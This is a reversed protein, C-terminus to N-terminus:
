LFFISEIQKEVHAIILNDNYIKTNQLCILIEM